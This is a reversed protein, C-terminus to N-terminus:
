ASRVVCDFILNVATRYIEVVALNCSILSVFTLFYIKFMALIISVEIKAINM